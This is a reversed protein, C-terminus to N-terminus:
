TVPESKEKPVDKWEGWKTVEMFLGSGVDKRGREMVRFQLIGDRSFRLDTYTIPDGIRLAKGIEGGGAEDSSLSGLTPASGRDPQNM